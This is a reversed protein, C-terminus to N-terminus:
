SVLKLNHKTQFSFAIVNGMDLGIYIYVCLWDALCVGYLFYYIALLFRIINTEIIFFSMCVMPEPGM